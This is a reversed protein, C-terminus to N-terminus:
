PWFIFRKDASTTNFRGGLRRWYIGSARWELLIALIAVSFGLATWHSGWFFSLALLVGAVLYLVRAVFYNLSITFEEYQARADEWLGNLTEVLEM